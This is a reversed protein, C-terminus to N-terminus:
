RSPPRSDTALERLLPAPDVPRGGEYWGPATWQEFHLHCTSARGTQGVRGIRAGAEIRDGVAVRAPALLHMYVHARGSRTEIVAFNGAADHWRAVAVRGERAAIVPTGCDTLIDQGEHARGGGFRNEHTGLDYDGRVPFAPPSAAALQAPSPAPMGDIVYAGAPAPLTLAALLALGAPRHRVIRHM